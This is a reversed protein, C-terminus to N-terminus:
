SSLKELERKLKREKTWLANYQKELVLAKKLEKEDRMNDSRFTDLKELLKLQYQVAELQKTIETRREADKEAVKIAAIQAVQERESVIRYSDKLDIYAARIIGIVVLAAFIKLIIM